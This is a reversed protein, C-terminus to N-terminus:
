VRALKLRSRLLVLSLVRAFHSYASPALVERWAEFLKLTSPEVAGGSGLVFPRFPAAV